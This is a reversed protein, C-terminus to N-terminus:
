PKDVHLLPLLVSHIIIAFSVLEITVTHFLVTKHLLNREDCIALLSLKNHPYLCIYM